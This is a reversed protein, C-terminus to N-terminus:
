FHDCKVAKIYVEKQEKAKMVRSNMLYKQQQTNILAGIRKDM